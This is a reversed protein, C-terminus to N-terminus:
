LEQEGLNLAERFDKIGIRHLGHCMSQKLM